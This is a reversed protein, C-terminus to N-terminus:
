YMTYLRILGDGGAKGSTYDSGGGQGGHGGALSRYISFGNYTDNDIASLLCGGGGGGRLRASSSMAVGGKGYRRTNLTLPISRYHAYLNLSSNSSLMNSGSGGINGGSGGEFMFTKLCRNELSIALSSKSYSGGKGPISTSGSGNKAGSGGKLTYLNQLVHGDTASALLINSDNGAKGDANSAVENGGAGLTIKICSASSIYSSNILQKLDAVVIASAGGGGGRGATVAQFVGSGSGGGACIDFVVVPGNNIPIWQGNYDTFAVECRNMTLDYRLFLVDYKSYENFFTSDFAYPKDPDLDNSSTISPKPILCNNKEGIPISHAFNNEGYYYYNSNLQKGWDSFEASLNLGNVLKGNLNFPTTDFYHYASDVGDYGYDHFNIVRSINYKDSQTSYAVFDPNDIPQIGTPTFEFQM